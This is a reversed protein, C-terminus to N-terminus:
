FMKKIKSPMKFSPKKGQDQTNFTLIIKLGNVKTQYTFNSKTILHSQKNIKYSYTMKGNEFNTKSLNIESLNKQVESYLYSGMIKQVISYNKSGAKIGVEYYSGSDKIDLYPYIKQDIKLEAKSFQYTSRPAKKWESWKKNVKYRGIFYKSKKKTWMQITAADNKEFNTKVNSVVFIPNQKRYTTTITQTYYKKNPLVIKTKIKRKNVHNTKNTAKQAQSIIKSSSVKTASAQKSNQAFIGLLFIGSILIELKVKIKRKM